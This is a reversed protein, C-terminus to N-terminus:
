TARRAMGRFTHTHNKSGSGSGDEAVIGAVHTGHGYEDTVTKAGNSNAPVFSEGYLIRSKGVKGNTKDSGVRLDWHDAIGSDIVAVSVGSGDWGNKLALDAGVSPTAYDLSGRVGRNPSIYVVEPDSALEALQNAPISYHGGKVIGLETKLQGGRSTIKRHHAATPTQGFQVIVDVTGGADVKELDTAIKPSAAFVLSTVILASALLGVKNTTRM